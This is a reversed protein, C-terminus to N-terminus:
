PQFVPDKASAVIVLTDLNAAISQLMRSHLSFRDQDGKYRALLNKRAIVGVLHEEEIKVYDGIVVQSFFPSNLPIEVSKM